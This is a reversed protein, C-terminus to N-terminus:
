VSCPISDLKIELGHGAKELLVKFKEALEKAEGESEVLYKSYGTHEPKTKKLEPYVASFSYPNRWSLFSRHFELDFDGEIVLALGLRTQGYIARLEM